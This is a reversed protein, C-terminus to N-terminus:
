KRHRAQSVDKALSNMREPIAVVAEKVQESVITVEVNGKQIYFVTDTPDGQSFVIQDSRCRAM